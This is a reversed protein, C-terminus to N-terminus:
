YYMLWLSYLSDFVHVYSHLRWYYYWDHYCKTCLAHCCHPLVIKTHSELCIGCEDEREIDLDLLERKHELRKSIAMGKHPDEISDVQSAYDCLRQLSPLIVAANMNFLILIMKFQSTCFFQLKRTIKVTCCYALVNNATQWLEKGSSFLYM